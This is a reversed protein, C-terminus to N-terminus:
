SSFYRRFIDMFCTDYLWVGCTIHKEGYVLLSHLGMSELCSCVFLSLELPSAAREALIKVGAGASVPASIDEVKRLISNKRLVAFLAAIMRRVTNKDNGLYSGLECAVGWKKMQELVETQIRACDGLRPRVFSALLEGDGDTGQWYDFPLTKIGWTKTLVTKKETKLSVTISEERVEEASAFYLPSLLNDLAVEVVSEFPIELAREFPLVVGNTGEVSLVLDSITEEGENKVQLSTFMSRRAFYDAYSVVGNVQGHLSIIEELKKSKQAM